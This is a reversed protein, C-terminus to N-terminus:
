SYWRAPRKEAFYANNVEPRNFTLTAVGRPDLRRLIPSSSDPSMAPVGKLAFPHLRISSNVINSSPERKREDKM